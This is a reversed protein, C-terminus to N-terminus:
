PALNLFVRGTSIGSRRVARRIDRPMRRAWVYWPLIKTMMLHFLRETRLYYADVRELAFLDSGKRILGLKDSCACHFHKMVMRRIERNYRGLPYAFCSVRVGLMDEIIAKAGCVEEQVQARPLRTLDPHTLTHAGFDIGWRHMEQIERWALMPRGSLSPLRSDPKISGRKGVTLFVTARIGYSQLVPFADKYVSRYGDDFTVAFSREPFAERKVVIDAAQELTLAQYHKEALKAMGVRFLSPSFSIVSSDEEITHFTLIPFVRATM